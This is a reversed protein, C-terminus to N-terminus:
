NREKKKKSDISHFTAFNKILECHLDKLRKRCM